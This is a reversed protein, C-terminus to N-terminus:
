SGSRRDETWRLTSRDTSFASFWKAVPSARPRSSGSSVGSSPHARM